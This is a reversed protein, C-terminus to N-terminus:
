TECGCLLTSTVPSKYLKFRSAFSITNCRWIRDLRAFAAMASALRILVEVSCTSDKCLTRGPVQFQGDGLVEAREYKYRCQHQKCHQNHDQEKRRQKWEVPRQETYSDTPSIKFNVMAAVWLNSTTPLDYTAYMYAKWWLLHIEPPLPTNQAHDDRPVLQVPHTLNLM